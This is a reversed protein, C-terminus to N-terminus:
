YTLLKNEKKRLKELTKLDRAFLVARLRRNSKLVTLDFGDAEARKLYYRPLKVYKRGRYLKDTSLGQVYDGGIGPKLSMATFPLLKGSYKEKFEKVAFKQLYKACYFATDYDLQGVTSFGKTWICELFSSRYQVNGRSSKKWFILDSPCWGFVIIHYHPRSGLDGYEGCLFYRIKLPSLAERLSKLFLQYDRKVLSGNLPLHENNYTLTLVCNEKHLKAEDMIRFAWETSYQRCCQICSGCPVLVAHKFLPDSIDLPKEVADFWKRGSPLDLFYKPYLCM